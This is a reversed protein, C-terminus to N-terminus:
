PAKETTTLPAVRASKSFIPKSSPLSPSAKPATSDRSDTSKPLVSSHNNSRHLSSALQSSSPEIQQQWSSINFKANSTLESVEPIVTNLAELLPMVVFQIFTYQMKAQNTNHRDMFPSIDMGLSKEKDGQGFLEEVVKQAWTVAVKWPRTVNSIDAVKLVMRSLSLRHQANGYDLHSVKLISNFEGIIELHKAMDTSLILTIVIKRFLRFQEISLNKLFNLNEQKLIQFLRAAHMSELVSQDNYQIALPDMASVLFNNNVGPHCLDHCMASILLALKEVPPITLLCQTCLLWHVAQMVDAAHLSTHYINTDIYCQEVTLGFEMFIRENIGFEEILGHHRLLLCAMTSLAHGEANQTYEFIDFNWTNLKYGSAMTDINAAGIQVPAKTAPSKGFSGELKPVLQDLLFAKAECEVSGLQQEDFQYIKREAILHKILELNRLEIAKLHTNRQLEELMQIASEAQSSFAINGQMQIMVSLQRQLADHSRILNRHQVLLLLIALALIGLLALASCVVAPIIVKTNAGANHSPPIWALWVDSHNKLWRCAAEDNSFGREAVDYMIEMQDNNSLTFQKLFAFEQPFRNSFQPWLAKYLVEEPYDCFIEGTAAHQYCSDTYYPLTVRSLAYKKLYYHPNWLYFLICQHSEFAEDIRSLLASEELPVLTLDWGNSRCIEEDYTAWPFSLLTHNIADFFENRESPSMGIFNDARPYIDLCFSPIYWGNRGVVGLPGGNIVLGGDIYTVKDQEEGTTWIELSVHATGNKLFEWPGQNEVFINSVPTGLKETLLISALAINVESALWYGGVLVVPEKNQQVTKMDEFCAGRAIYVVCASVWLIGITHHM